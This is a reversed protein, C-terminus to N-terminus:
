KFYFRWQYGWVWDEGYHFLNKQQYICVFSLICFNVIHPMMLCNFYILYTALENITWWVWRTKQHKIMYRHIMEQSHRRQGDRSSIPFNFFCGM